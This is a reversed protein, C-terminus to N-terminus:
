GEQHAIRGAADTLGAEPPRATGVQTLTVLAGMPRGDDDLRTSVLTDFARSRGPAPCSVVTRAPVPLGGRVAARVAGALELSPGDGADECIGLYSRGVGARAPDGSNERCFDDWARNTWVITGARDLLAVETRGEPPELPSTGAGGFFTARVNRVAADLHDVQALLVDRDPGDACSALAMLRLSVKMVRDLSGTHIEQVLGEVVDLRIDAHRSWPTRLGQRRGSM